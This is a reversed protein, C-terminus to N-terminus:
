FHKGGFFRIFYDDLFQFNRRMSGVYERGFVNLRKWEVKTWDIVSCICASPPSSLSSFIWPGWFGISPLPVLFTQEACPMFKIWGRLFGRKDSWYIIEKQHFIYRCSIFHPGEIFWFRGTSKWHLKDIVKIGIREAMVGLSATLLFGLTACSAFLARLKVMICVTGSM